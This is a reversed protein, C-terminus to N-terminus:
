IAIAQDAITKLFPDTQMEELTALTADIQRDGLQKKLEVIFDLRKFEILSTKDFFTILLDIDGGKKESLTRSGFLYIKSNVRKFKEFVTKIKELEQPSLRM